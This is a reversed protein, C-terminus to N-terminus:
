NLGKSTFHRLHDSPILHNDVIYGAFLKAMLRAGQENVHRGDHYYKKDVPFLSAFDFLHAGKQKAVTKLVDNMEQYAAIYEESAVRPENEFLPSFAFTALVATINRAQASLVINEVNRQFYIPRNIELMRRASVDEFAGSPYSHNMKQRQFNDGYYTKAHRDITKTIDAHPQTVGARVLFFRIIASYEFISPMFVNTVAPMTAGSNDGRYAEPPWVLRTHIDNIAEYFIILDPELDLVRFQFNILCEFSTWGPVGANIVNVNAYGRQLIEQELLEPYSLNYDEVGSTYTTSGGLCVIRFENAPKPLAIEEGRYGLSNHKNKGSQYNPTLYYGLYRHFSKKFYAQGKKKLRDELQQLSAYRFFIDEDAFNVLYIRAAIELVVFCVVLTALSLALNPLLSKKSENM